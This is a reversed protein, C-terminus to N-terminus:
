GYSSEFLWSVLYEAVGSSWSKWYSSLCSYVLSILKLLLLLVPTKKPFHRLEEGVVVGVHGVLVSLAAVHGCSVELVADRVAGVPVRNAAAHLVVVVQSRVAELEGDFEAAVFERGALGKFLVPFIVHVGEIFIDPKHTTLDVM